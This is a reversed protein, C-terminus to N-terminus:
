DDMLEIILVDDDDRHDRSYERRQRQKPLVGAIALVIVGIIIAWVWFDM